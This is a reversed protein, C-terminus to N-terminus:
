DTQIKERSYDRRLEEHSDVYKKLKSQRNRLKKRVAKIYDENETVKAMELEKKANRVNREMIRQKQELEYIRNNEESDLKEIPLSIGPFYAFHTHRCNVGGLGDVLGYGTVDNFIDKHFYEGQWSEHNKHGEGKDRAGLHQSTAFYEAELDDAVKANHTNSSRSIASVITRRAVAEISYEVPIKIGEKNTRYYTQATIGKDALKTLARSLSTNYDYIGTTTELNIQDLVQMYIRPVANSIEQHILRLEGAVEGYVSQIVDNFAINDVSVPTAGLEYAKRYTKFDISQIGADTIAKKVQEFPLENLQAIIKIAKEDLGGIKALQSLKWELDGGVYSYASFREAIWLLLELEVKSYTDILPQALLSIQKDTLM